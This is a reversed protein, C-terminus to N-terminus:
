YRLPFLFFHRMNSVWQHSSSETEMESVIKQFPKPCPIKTERHKLNETVTIKTLSEANLNRLERPFIKQSHTVCFSNRRVLPHLGRQRRAQVGQNRTSSSLLFSVRSHWAGLSPQHRHWCPEWVIEGITGRAIKNLNGVCLYTFIIVINRCVPFRSLMNVADHWKFAPQSNPISMHPVALKYSFFFISLLLRQEICFHLLINNDNSLM